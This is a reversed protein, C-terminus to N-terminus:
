SQCGSQDEPKVGTMQIRKHEKSIAYYISKFLIPWNGNPLTTPLEKEM